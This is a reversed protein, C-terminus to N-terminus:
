GRKGHLIERVVVLNGDRDLERTFIFAERTERDIVIVQTNPLFWCSVANYATEASSAMVSALNGARRCPIYLFERQEM